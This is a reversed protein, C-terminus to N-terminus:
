IPRRGLYEFGAALAEQADQPLESLQKWIEPRAAQQEPVRWLGVMQSLPTELFADAAKDSIRRRLAIECDSALWSLSYGAHFNESVQLRETEFKEFWQELGYRTCNYFHWPAEHLPQLFATHILVHGGPRLVRYIERAAQWPDRYHEFANLAIVAEFTEDAFPLRHSDAIVDTHRFVAAEVEVVHEFREATGGASLHLVPALTSHILALASAPMPNSLHTDPNISPTSMGPFLVPRGHFLSWRCSGDESILADGEATLTLQGGTKPCRLLSLIRALRRDIGPTADQFQKSGGEEHPSGGLPWVQTLWPHRRGLDDMMLRIKQPAGAAKQIMSSSHVRYEALAPGPVLEGRLGREALKCWFDFDEWGQNAHLDYGGVGAWAARSIVAMADIYNGNALRVPDYAANMVGTATGFQQLYPYVFAAGSIHATQLCTAACESLLRNDADLPLVFPTEAAAFGLNRSLGLGSNARNRLVSVRNFRSANAAAWQVAIDLSNDTSCDDIVILDLETLTQDRVSDLAEIVCSAYNYLPIIITLEASGLHDVEFAVEYNPIQPLPPLVRNRSCIELAFSHAATSGGALLDLVTSVLEKRREPGFTWLVDNRAALSIRRRLAGDDVLRSLTQHWEPPTAALFGTEGHRIARRFPGTPSAITPVDVLSAEFFKLESKAECFPNGVEVPALNVDFRALEEPLRDLPVVNRWEIQDELGTLVRFEELDLTPRSHEVSYFAVLRTNPRARLVAAVGDVCLAFDRQHTRSGGAYGIRVLGDEPGSHRRRRAALRSVRLHMLDFGNPLVYSPKRARRMHGALEETTALCMDAVSMTDRIHTYHTRVAEETLHQTRIGDILDLQALEPDIMLDDVDFVIKARRNRAVNVAMAMREDWAVRWIVLVNASRIESIRHPIEEVRMWSTHAGLGEAAEASHAVRYRHGPTDPEGSIFVLRLVNQTGPFAASGRPVEPGIQQWPKWVGFESSKTSPEIQSLGINAREPEGGWRTNCELRTSDNGARLASPCGYTGLRRQLEIVRDNSWGLTSLELSIENLSPDVAAARMYAAEAERGKGQTKLIHGLQVYADAAAPDLSIARRYANEAQQFDGAEKLMHGYQVWIPPNHPNRSLARRYQKAALEFQGADRARDALTILSVRKRRFGFRQM